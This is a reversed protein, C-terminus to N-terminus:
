DRPQRLMELFRDVATREASSMAKWPTGGVWGDDIGKIVDFILGADNLDLSFNDGRGATVSRRDRLPGYVSRRFVDLDGFPEDPFHDVIRANDELREAITLQNELAIRVELTLNLTLSSTM